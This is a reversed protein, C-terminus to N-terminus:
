VLKVMPLDVVVESGPNAVILNVSVVATTMFAEPGSNRCTLKLGLGCIESCKLLRLIGIEWTEIEHNPKWFTDTAEDLGSDLIAKSSKEGLRKTRCWCILSEGLPGRNWAVRMM